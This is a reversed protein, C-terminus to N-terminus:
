AHLKMVAFYLKGEQKVKGIKVLFKLAESLSPASLGTARKLETFSASGNNLHAMIRKESPRLIWFDRDCFPCRITKRM